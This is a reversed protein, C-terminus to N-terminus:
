LIAGRPVPVPDSRVLTVILDVVQERPMFSTDVVQADPALRLAGKPRIRDREDREALDRLVVRPEPSKGSAALQDVRRAARIELDAELFFKWRADPFVVTTIDRGELVSAREIGMERQRAVLAERVAECDAVDSVGVSVDRERIATTIEEGNCWVRVDGETSSELRIACRATLAALGEGDRLSVGERLAFWTVTRYMAGTDLHQFGLRRAVERAVTSKGVGCPGDIAVVAIRSDRIPATARNKSIVQM